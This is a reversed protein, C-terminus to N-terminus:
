GPGTSSEDLSKAQKHEEDTAGSKWYSSVYVDSRMLQREKFFYERLAKMVSYEAAAWVGVRGPLWELQAIHEVLPSKGRRSPDSELWHVQVGDPVVLERKDYISPLELVAYGRAEAPLRELNAAIAPLAPLDGALFFWDCQENLLQVPGPGTVLVQEGLSVDAAWSAAPGGPDHHAIELVLLLRKQDVNRITYSRKWYGGLDLEDPDRHGLPATGPKPLLLKVYCGVQDAPFDSLGPGTLVVRRM